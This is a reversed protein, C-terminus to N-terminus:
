ARFSVPSWHSSSGSRKHNSSTTRPVFPLDDSRKTAPEIRLRTMKSKIEKEWRRGNQGEERQMLAFWCFVACTNPFAHLTHVLEYSVAQALNREVTVETLKETDRYRDPTSGRM